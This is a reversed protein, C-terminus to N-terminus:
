SVYFLLNFFFSFFNCDLATAAVKRFMLLSLLLSFSLTSSSSSSYSSFFFLTYLQAHVNHPLSFFLKPFDFCFEIAVYVCVCIYKFNLLIFCFFFVNALIKNFTCLSMNTGPQNPSQAPHPVFLSHMMMRNIASIRSQNLDKM